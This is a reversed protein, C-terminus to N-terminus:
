CRNSLKVANHGSKLAALKVENKVYNKRLKTFLKQSPTTRGGEGTGGYRQQVGRGGSSVGPIQSAPVIIQVM